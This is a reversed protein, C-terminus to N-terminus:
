SRKDLHIVLSSTIPCFSSQHPKHVITNGVVGQLLPSVEYHSLKDPYKTVLCSLVKIVLVADPRLLPQGHTTGVIARSWSNTTVLVITVTDVLVWQVFSSQNNTPTLGRWLRPPVHLSSDITCPM